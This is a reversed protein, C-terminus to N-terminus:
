RPGCAADCFKVGITLPLDAFAFSLVPRSGRWPLRWLKAAIETLCPKEGGRRKESRYSFARDFRDPCLNEASVAGTPISSVSSVSSEYADEPLKSRAVPRSNLSHFRNVHGALDQAFEEPFCNETSKRVFEGVVPGCPFPPECM